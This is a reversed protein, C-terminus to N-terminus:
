NSDAIIIKENVTGDVTKIKLFFQGNVMKDIVIETSNCEIKNILKGLLDTIEVSLIPSNSKIQFFENSPNPFIEISNSKQVDDINATYQIVNPLYDTTIGGANTTKQVKYGNTQSWTLIYGITDSIFTCGTVVTTDFGEPELTTQKFFTNGNDISRYIQDLVIFLNNKTIEIDRTFGVGPIHINKPSGIPLNDIILSIYNYATYGFLYGDSGHSSTFLTDGFSSTKSISGTVFEDVISTEREFSDLNYSYLSHGGFVTFSNNFFIPAIFYSSDIIQWNNGYDNTFYVGESLALIGVSDNLFKIPNLQSANGITDVMHKTWTNGGDLTRHVFRISGNLGNIPYLSVTHVYAVNSSVVDIGVPNLSDFFSSIWSLGGDHTSYVVTQYLPTNFPQVFGSVMGDNETAFDMYRLNFDHYNNEFKKVLEWQSFSCFNILLYIVLLNTKM